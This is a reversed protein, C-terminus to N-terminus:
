IPSSLLSGDSTLQLTKSLDIEMSILEDRHARIRIISEQADIKSMLKLELIEMRNSRKLYIFGAVPAGFIALLLPWYGLLPFLQSLVLGLCGSGVGGLISLFVALGKSSSVKGSFRLVKSDADGGKAEWGREELWVTIGNLVELPPLPSAVDIITTRDKSAARLFFVLGIALLITLLLISSFAYQMEDSAQFKEIM